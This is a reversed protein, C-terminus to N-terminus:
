GRRGNERIKKSVLNVVYLNWDASELRKLPNSSQPRFPVFDSKAVGSPEYVEKPGLGSPGYFAEREAM